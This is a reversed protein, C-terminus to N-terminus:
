RQPRCVTDGLGVTASYHIWDAERGELSAYNLHGSRDNQIAAGISHFESGRCSVDVSDVYTTKFCM